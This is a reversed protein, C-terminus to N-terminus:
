DAATTDVHARQVLVKDTGIYNGNTALVDWYYSGKPLDHWEGMSNSTSSSFCATFKKDDYSPDPQLSKDQRYEVTISPNASATSCGKFWLQSYQEDSWRTSEWGPVMTWKGDPPAAGFAVGASAALLLAAGSAVAFTRKRQTRKM